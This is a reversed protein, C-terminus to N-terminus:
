LGPHCLCPISILCLKPYSCSRVLEWLGPTLGKVLLNIRLAAFYSICFGEVQRAVNNRQLNKDINGTKRRAGDVQGAVFVNTAPQLFAACQNTSKSPTSRIHRCKNSSLNHFVLLLAFLQQEFYVLARSKAVVKKLRCGTSPALHFVPLALMSLFKCRFLTARCTSPKQIEYKAAKLVLRLPGRVCCRDFLWDFSLESM